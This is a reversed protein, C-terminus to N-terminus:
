TDNVQEEGLNHVAWHLIRLEEAGNCLIAALRRLGHAIHVTELECFTPIGCMVNNSFTYCWPEGERYRLHKAVEPWKWVRYSPVGTVSWQRKVSGQLKVWPYLPHDREIVLGERTATVGKTLECPLTSEDM